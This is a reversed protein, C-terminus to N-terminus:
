VVSRKLSSDKAAQASLSLSGRNETDHCFILSLTHSLSQKMYSFTLSPIVNISVLATLDLLFPCPPSLSATQEPSLYWKVRRTDECVVSPNFLGLVLVFVLARISVNIGVPSKMQNGMVCLFANLPMFSWWHAALDILHGTNFRFTACVPSTTPRDYM